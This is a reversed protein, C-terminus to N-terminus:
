SLLPGISALMHGVFKYNKTPKKSMAGCGGIWIAHPKLQLSDSTDRIPPLLGPTGSFENFFTPLRSPDPVHSWNKALRVFHSIKYSELPKHSMGLTHPPQIQIWHPFEHLITVEIRLNMIKHYERVPSIKLAWFISTWAKAFLRFRGNQFDHNESTRSCSLDEIRLIMIILYQRFPLIKLEWFINKINKRFASM